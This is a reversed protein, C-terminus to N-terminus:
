SAPSATEGEGAAASEEPGDGAGDGVREAELSGGAPRKQVREPKLGQESSRDARHDSM